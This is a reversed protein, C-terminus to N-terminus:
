SKPTGDLNFLNSPEDNEGKQVFALNHYFHLSV